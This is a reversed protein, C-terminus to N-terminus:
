KKSKGATLQTTWNSQGSFAFSYIWRAPLVALNWFDPSDSKTRKGESSAIKSCNSFLFIGIWSIFYVDNINLLYRLVKSM